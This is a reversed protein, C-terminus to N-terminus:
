RTITLKLDFKSTLKMLPLNKIFLFTRLKFLAMGLPAAVKSFDITFFNETMWNLAHTM